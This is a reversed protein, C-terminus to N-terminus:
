STVQVTQVGGRYSGGATQPLRTLWILVYRGTVPRPGRVDIHQPAGTVSALTTWLAPDPQIDDSVKIDANTGTGLFDLTVQQVHRPQGLDLVLGVGPKGNLNATAYSNTQWGSYPNTDIARGASYDNETGIVEGTAPAVPATSAGSASPVPVTFPNYSHAAVIPIPGLTIPVSSTSASPAATSTLVAVDVSRGRPQLPAAGAFVLRVGVVALLAIVVITGAITWTRARPSRPRSTDIRQPAQSQIQEIANTMAATDRLKTTGRPRRAAAASRGVLEDISRPLGARVQSPPLVWQGQRVALPLLGPRPGPWTGTVLLYAISGCADVDADFGVIQPDVPGWLAAETAMGRVRVEGADTVFVSNARLRGHPVKRPLGASVAAAVEATIQLAEDAGIPGSSTLLQALSRGGAWESVVAVYDIGAHTTSFIDLVRVLRRDEVRAAAQAAGLFAAARPDNAQLLRLMVQRDLATDHAHWTTVAPDAVDSALKAVLTYRGIAEAEDLSM